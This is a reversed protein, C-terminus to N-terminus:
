QTAMFSMFLNGRYVEGDLYQICSFYIFLACVSNRYFLCKHSNMCLTCAFASHCERICLCFICVFCVTHLVYIEDGMQVIILHFSAKRHSKKGRLLCFEFCKVGILYLQCRLRFHNSCGNALVLNTDIAPQFGTYTAVPQGGGSSAVGVKRGSVCFNAFMILIVFICIDDVPTVFHVFFWVIRLM